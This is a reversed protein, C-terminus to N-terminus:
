PAKLKEIYNIFLPYASLQESVTKILQNSYITHVNENHRLLNKFGWLHIVSNNTLSFPDSLLYHIPLHHNDACISLLRQEAFVMQSVMETPKEMNRFMFRKSEELYATKFSEEKIYLLATNSPVVNWNYEEPFHFGMPKKLLSPKLYVEPNLPEPHLATISSQQLLKGIPQTVILDMDLIVCPNAQVELVMLKGAAWFIESDIPDGNNELVTTDIGGDWLALLELSKIFKYGVKDTYLKISGNHKQWMLASVIMTLVEAPHMSFCKGSATHPKTWLVHLAATSPQKM